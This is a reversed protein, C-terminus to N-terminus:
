TEPPCVGRVPREARVTNLRRSIREVREVAWAETENGYEAVLHTHFWGGLDKETRVEAPLDTSNDTSNTV